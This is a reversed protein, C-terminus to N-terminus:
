CTPYAVRVTVAASGTKASANTVDLRLTVTEGGCHFGV